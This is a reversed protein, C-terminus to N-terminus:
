WCMCADPYMETVDTDFGSHMPLSYSSNALGVVEEHSTELFPQVPLPSAGQVVCVATGSGAASTDVSAAALPSLLLGTPSQLNNSASFNSVSAGAPPVVADSGVSGSWRDGDDAPAAQLSTEHVWETSGLVQMQAAPSPPPPAFVGVPVGDYVCAEAEEEEEEEEEDDEGEGDDGFGDETSADAASGAPTEVCPVVLAAAECGAAEVLEELYAGGDFARVVGADGEKRRVGEYVKAHEKAFALRAQPSLRRAVGTTYGAVWLLAVPAVLGELGCLTDFLLPAAGALDYHLTQVTTVVATTVFHLATTDTSRDWRWGLETLMGCVEALTVVGTCVAVAVDLLYGQRLVLAHRDMYSPVRGKKAAAAATGCMLDRVHTFRCGRQPATTPASAAGGGTQGGLFPCKEGRVSNCWYHALRPSSAPCKRQAAQAAAKRPGHRRSKSARNKNENFM